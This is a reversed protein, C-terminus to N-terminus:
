RVYQIVLYVFREGASGKVWVQTGAPMAPYAGSIGVTGEDYLSFSNAPIVDHDETATEGNYCITVLQNSNNIVKVKYAPHVLPTGLAQYSGTFTAADISRLPEFALRNSYTM